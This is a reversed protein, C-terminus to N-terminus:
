PLWIRTRFIRLRAPEDRYLQESRSSRPRLLLIPPMRQHSVGFLANFASSIGVFLDSCEIRKGHVFDEWELFLSIDKEIAEARRVFFDRFEEPASGAKRAVKRLAQIVLEDDPTPTIAEAELADRTRQSFDKSSSKRAKEFCYNTWNWDFKFLLQETYFNRAGDSNIYAQFADLIPEPIPPQQEESRLQVLRKRLLDTDLLEQMSGRKELYCERDYHSRFKAAWQSPQAMKAANLSSFCDEFLPLGIIPLAKGAARGLPESSASSLVATLFDGVKATPCRRTEFLGKLM